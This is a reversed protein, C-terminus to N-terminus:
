TEPTAQAKLIWYVDRVERDDMRISAKPFGSKPDSIVVNVDPRLFQSVCGLASRELILALNTSESLWVLSWRLHVLSGSRSAVLGFRLLGGSSPAFEAFPLRADGWTRVPAGDRWELEAMTIPTRGYERFPQRLLEGWEHDPAPELVIMSGLSHVTQVLPSGPCPVLREDLDVSCGSSLFLAAAFLRLMGAPRGSFYLVYDDRQTSREGRPSELAPHREIARHHLVGESSYTARRVWDRGRMGLFPTLTSRSLSRRGDYRLQTMSAARKAADRLIESMRGAADYPTASGRMMGSSTLKTALRM